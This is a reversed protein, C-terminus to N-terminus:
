INTKIALLLRIADKFWDENRSQDLVSYSSPLYKPRNKKSITPRGNLINRPEVVDVVCNDVNNGREFIDRFLTPFSILFLFLIALIEL